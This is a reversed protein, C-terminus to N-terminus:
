IIKIKIILRTKFFIGGPINKCVFGERFKNYIFLALNLLIIISIFFCTGYLIGM